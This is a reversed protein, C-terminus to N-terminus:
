FLGSYDCALVPNSTFNRGRLEESFGLNVLLQTARGPASDASIGSLREIVAQMREEGGLKALRAERAATAAGLGDAPEPEPEPERPTMPPGVVLQAIKTKIEDDGAKVGAAAELEALQFRM